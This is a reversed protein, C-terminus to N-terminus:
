VNAVNEVNTTGTEKREEEMKKLAEIRRKNRASILRFSSEREQPSLIDWNAIRRTTGDIDDVLRL